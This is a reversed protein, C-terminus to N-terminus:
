GPLSTEQAEAQTKAEMAALGLLHALLSQHQKVAIRRLSELMELTYRASEAPSFGASLPQPMVILPKLNGSCM